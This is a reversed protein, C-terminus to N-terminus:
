NRYFGSAGNQAFLVGGTQHRRKANRVIEADASYKIPLGFPLWTGPAIKNVITSDGLEGTQPDREINLRIDNAFGPVDPNNDAM